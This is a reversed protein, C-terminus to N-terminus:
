IIKSGQQLPVTLIKWQLLIEAEVHKMWEHFVIYSAIHIVVHYEVGDGYSSLCWCRARAQGM